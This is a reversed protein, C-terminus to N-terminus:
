TQGHFKGVRLRYNEHRFQIGTVVKHNNRYEVVIFTTNNLLLNVRLYVLLNVVILADTCM